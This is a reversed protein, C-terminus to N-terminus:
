DVLLPFECLSPLTGTRRIRIAYASLLYWVMVSFPLVLAANWSIPNSIRTNVPEGFIDMSSGLQVSTELGSLSVSDCRGIVTAM